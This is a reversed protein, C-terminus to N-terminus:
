TVYFKREGKMLQGGYLPPKGQRCCFLLVGLRLNTIINQAAPVYLYEASLPINLISAGSAHGERGQKAYLKSM